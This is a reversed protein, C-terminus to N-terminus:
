RARKSPPPSHAAVERWRRVVYVRKRTEFFDRRSLSAIVPRAKIPIREAFTQQGSPPIWDPHHLSIWEWLIVAPDSLTEGLRQLNGTTAFMFMLSLFPSFELIDDPDTDAHKSFNFPKRVAKIFPKVYEPKIARKIAESVVDEIGRSKCIGVIVENSASALTHISIEDGDHFWLDIATDLQGLAADLKPVHIKSDDSMSPGHFFFAVVVAGFFCLPSCFFRQPPHKRSRRLM